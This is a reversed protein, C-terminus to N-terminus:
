APFSSRERENSGGTLASRPDILRPGITKACCSLDCGAATKISEIKAATRCREHALVKGLDRYEIWTAAYSAGIATTRGNGM